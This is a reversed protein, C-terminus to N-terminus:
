SLHTGDTRGGPQRSYLEGANAGLHLAPNATILRLGTSFSPLLGRPACRPAADPDTRRRSWRRRRRCTFLGSSGKIEWSDHNRLGQRQRTNRSGEHSLCQRQRRRRCGEHSLGQRHRTNRSGEHSLCRRQRRRRCGEHSLGQRQRTSGSCRLCPEKHERM